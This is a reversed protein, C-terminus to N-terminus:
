LKVLLDLIAGAVQDPEAEAQVTFDAKQYFPRRQELLRIMEVDSRLLPRSQDGALRQLCVRLPCDLWVTAGANSIVARNEASIFAGGGLAIVAKTMQASSQVAIRELRRFEAEGDQQFIERVVRGTQNEIIQDLDFFEYGIRRALVEGVTTKGAGMFGVLFVIPPLSGPKRNGATM